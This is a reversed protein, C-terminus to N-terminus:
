HALFAHANSLILPMIDNLRFKDCFPALSTPLFAINANYNICAVFLWAIERM